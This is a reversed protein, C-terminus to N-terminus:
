YESRSGGTKMLWTKALCRVVADHLNDINELTIPLYEDTQDDVINWSVFFNAIILRYLVYTRMLSTGKIHNIILAEEKILSITKSDRGRAKCEVSVIDNGSSDEPVIKIGTIVDDKDRIYKYKINLKFVQNKDVLLM